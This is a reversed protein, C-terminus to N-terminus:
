LLKLSVAQVVGMVYHGCTKEYFLAVKKLATSGLTYELSRKLLDLTSGKGVIFRHSPPQKLEPQHSDVTYGINGTKTFNTSIHIGM